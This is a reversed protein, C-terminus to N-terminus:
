TEKHGIKIGWKCKEEIEEAEAVNRIYETATGRNVGDISLSAFHQPNRQVYSREESTLNVDWDVVWDDLNALADSLKVHGVLNSHHFHSRNGDVYKVFGCCSHSQHEWKEKIANRTSVMGEPAPPLQGWSKGDKCIPMLLLLNRNMVITKQKRAAFLVEPPPMPVYKSHLQALRKPDTVYLIAFYTVFHDSDCDFATTDGNLTRRMVLDKTHLLHENTFVEYNHPGKNVMETAVTTVTDAVVSQAETENEVDVALIEPFGLLSLGTTYVFSLKHSEDAVICVRFPAPSKVDATDIELGISELASESHDTTPGTKGPTKKKRRQPKSCKIVSEDETTEDDTDGGGGFLKMSLRKKRTFKKASKKKSRDPSAM